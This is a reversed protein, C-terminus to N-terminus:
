QSLGERLELIRIVDVLSLLRIGALYTKDNQTPDTDKSPLPHLTDQMINEFHSLKGFVFAQIKRSRDDEPYEAGIVKATPALLTTNEQIQCWYNKVTRRGTRIPSGKDVLNDKTIAIGTEECVERLCTNDIAEDRFATGTVSIQCDVLKMTHKDMYQPCVVYLQSCDERKVLWEVSKRNLDPLVFSSIIVSQEDSHIFQSYEWFIKIYSPLILHYRLPETYKPGSNHTTVTTPQSQTTSTTKSSKGVWRNSGTAVHPIDSAKSVLWRQTGNSNM